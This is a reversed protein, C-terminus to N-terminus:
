QRNMWPNAILQPGEATRLLIPNEGRSYEILSIAGNPTEIQPDIRVPFHSLERVIKKATEVSLFDPARVVIDVDSKATVTPMGSALEFGVSGTPGWSLQYSLFIEDVLDLVRLAHIQHYRPSKKWAKQSVFQEPAVHEAVANWKLFAAFRQDRSKGRIGVPIKGNEIPARRVVVYPALTLEEKVWEPETSITILQTIDKVRLLDHPKVDM